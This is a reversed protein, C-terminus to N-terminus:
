ELLARLLEARLTDNSLVDCEWIVVVKFGLNRLERQVRVDRAENDHFKTAWFKRNRKPITAGRCGRHQHWFCGHVFVVWKKSRNAMDPSGPLDRNRVRFRLGASHLIQRVRLEPATDAQRM